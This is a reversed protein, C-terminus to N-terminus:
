NDGDFISIFYKLKANISMLVTNISDIMYRRNINFNEVSSIDCLRGYYEIYERITKLTNCVNYEDHGWGTLFKNITEVIGEFSDGCIKFNDSFDDETSNSLVYSCEKLTQKISLLVDLTDAYFAGSRKTKFINFLKM